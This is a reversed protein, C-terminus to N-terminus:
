NMEATKVWSHTNLSVEHLIKVLKLHCSSLEKYLKTVSIMINEANVYM